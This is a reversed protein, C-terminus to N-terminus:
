LPAGCVVCRSRSDLEHAGCYECEEWRIGMQNALAAMRRETWGLAVGKKIAIERLRPSAMDKAWVDMMLPPPKPPNLSM